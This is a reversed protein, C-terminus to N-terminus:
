TLSCFRSFTTWLPLSVEYLWILIHTLFLCVRLEPTEDSFDTACLFFGAQLGSEYNVKHIFESQWFPRAM